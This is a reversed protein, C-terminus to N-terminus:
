IEVEEMLVLSYLLEGDMEKSISKTIFSAGEQFNVQWEKAIEMDPYKSEVEDYQDRILYVKHAKTKNKSLPKIRLIVSDNNIAGFNEISCTLSTAPIWQENAKIYKLCSSNERRYLYEGNFKGNYEREDALNFSNCYNPLKQLASHLIGKIKKHINVDEIRNGNVFDAFFSTLMVIVVLESEILNYKEGRIPIENTYYLINLSSSIPLHPNQEVDKFTASEWALLEEVDKTYEM